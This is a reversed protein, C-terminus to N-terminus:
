SSKRAIALGAAIGGAFAILLAVLGIPVPQKTAGKATKRAKKRAKRARRSVDQVTESAASQVREATDSVASQVTGTVDDVRGSVDDAAGTMKGRADRFRGKVRTRAALVASARGLDQGPEASGNDGTVAPESRRQKAGM